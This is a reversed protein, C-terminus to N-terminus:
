DEMERWKFYNYYYLEKKVRANKECEGDVPRWKVESASSRQTYERMVVALSVRSDTAAASPRARGGNRVSKSRERYISTNFSSESHQAFLTTIRSVVALLEWAEDRRSTEPKEQKGTAKKGARTPSVRWCTRLM